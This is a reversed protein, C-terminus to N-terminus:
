DGHPSDCLSPSILPCGRVCWDDEEEAAFQWLCNERDFPVCEYKVSRSALVLCVSKKKNMLSWYFIRNIGNEMQEKPECAPTTTRKKM